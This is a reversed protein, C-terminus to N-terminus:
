LRQILEALSEEKADEQLQTLMSLRSAWREHIVNQDSKLALVPDLVWDGLVRASDPSPYALWPAVHRIRWDNEVTAVDPFRRGVEADTRADVEQAIWAWWEPSTPQLETTMALAQWHRVVVLCSPALGPEKAASAVEALTLSLLRLVTWDWGTRQGAVAGPRSTQRFELPQMRHRAPYVWRVLDEFGAMLWPDSETLLERLSAVWSADLRLFERVRSDGLLARFHEAWQRGNPTWGTRWGDGVLRAQRELDPIGFGVTPLGDVTENGRYEFAAIAAQIVQTEDLGLAARTFSTSSAGPAVMAQSVDTAPPNSRVPAPALEQAVASAHLVPPIRRSEPLIKEIQTRFERHVAFAVEQKWSEQSRARELLSRECAAMVGSRDVLGAQGLLAEGTQWAWQRPDDALVLGPFLSQGASGAFTRVWSDMAPGLPAGTQLVASRLDQITPECGRERLFVCTAGYLLDLCRVTRAGTGRFESNYQDARVSLVLSFEWVPRDITRPHELFPQEMRVGLLRLLDCFGRRRSSDPDSVLSQLIEHANAVSRLLMLGSSTSLRRRVLSWLRAEAWTVHQTEGEYLDCAFRILGLYGGARYSPDRSLIQEVGIVPDADWSGPVSHRRVRFFRRVDAKLADGQLLTRVLSRARPPRVPVETFAEVQPIGGKVPMGQLASEVLDVM